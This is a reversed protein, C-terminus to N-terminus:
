LKLNSTIFPFQRTSACMVTLLFQNGKRTKPLPGVCDVIVRSFPEEFAPIPQLPAVVPKQNLKGVLQCTHSFLKCFQVVDKRIGPWYFHSLNRSCTKSIGLHSYFSGIEDSGRSLQKSCCNRGCMLLPFM